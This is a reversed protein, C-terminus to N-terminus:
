GGGDWRWRLNNFRREGEEERGREERWEAGCGKQRTGSLPSSIYCRLGLPVGRRNESLRSDDGEVKKNEQKERRCWRVMEEEWLIM